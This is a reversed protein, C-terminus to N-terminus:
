AKKRKSRRAAKDKRAQLVPMLDVWRWLPMCSLAARTFFAGKACWVACAATAAASLGCATGTALRPYGSPEAALDEVPNMAVDVETAPGRTTEAASDPKDSAPRAEAVRPPASQSNDTRDGEGPKSDVVAVPADAPPQAPLDAQKPPPDAARVTRTVGPTATGDAPDRAPAPARADNRDNQSTRAGSEPGPEAVAVADVPEDAAPEADAVSSSAEGAARGSTPGLPIRAGLTPMSISPLSSALRAVAPARAAGASSSGPAGGGGTGEAV